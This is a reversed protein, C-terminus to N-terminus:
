MTSVYGSRMRELKKLISELRVISKSLGVDGATMNVIKLCHIQNDQEKSVMGILITLEDITLDKRGPYYKMGGCM